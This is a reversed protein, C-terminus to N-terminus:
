PRAGHVPGFSVRVAADTSVTLLFGDDTSPLPRGSHLDEVSTVQQGLQDEGIGPHQAIRGGGVRYRGAQLSLLLGVPSCDRDALHLEVSGDKRWRLAPLYEDPFGDLSVPNIWLRVNPPVSAFEIRCAHCQPLQLAAPEKAAYLAAAIASETLQAIVWVIPVPASLSWRGQTDVHSEARVVGKADLALVRVAGPAAPAPTVTGHQTTANM